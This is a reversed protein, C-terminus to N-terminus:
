GPLREARPNFNMSEIAVAGPWGCGEQSIRRTSLHGMMVVRAILVDKHQGTRLAVLMLSIGRAREDDVGGAAIVPDSTVVTAEYEDHPFLGDSNTFSVLSRNAVLAM